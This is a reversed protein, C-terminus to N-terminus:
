YGMWWQPVKYDAPLIKAGRRNDLWIFVGNTTVALRGQYNFDDVSQLACQYNTGGVVVGRPSSIVDCYGYRKREFNTWAGAAQFDSLAMSLSERARDMDVQKGSVIKRHAVLLLFLVVPVTMLGLLVLCALCGEHKPKM